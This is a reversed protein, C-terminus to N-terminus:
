PPGGRARLAALTEGICRTIEDTIEKLVMGRPVDLLPDTSRLFADTSVGGPRQTLDIHGLEDFGDRTVVFRVKREDGSIAFKAIDVEFPINIKGLGTEFPKTRKM